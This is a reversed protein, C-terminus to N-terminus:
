IKVIISNTSHSLELLGTTEGHGEGKDIHKLIDLKTEFSRTKHAQNQDSSDDNSDCKRKEAM